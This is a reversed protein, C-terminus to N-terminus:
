PALGSGVAFLFVDKGKAMEIPFGAGFPPDLEIHKGELLGLRAFAETGVLLEIAQAEGVASAIALYVKDSPRPHLVVVQGPRTYAAAVDPAVELIVGHLKPTENWVRRVIATSRPSM